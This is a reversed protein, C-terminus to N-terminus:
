HVSMCLSKENRLLVSHVRDQTINNVGRYRPFQEKDYVILLTAERM